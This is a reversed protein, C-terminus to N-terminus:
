FDRSLRISYYFIPMIISIAVRYDFSFIGVMVYALGIFIATYSAAMIMEGFYRM